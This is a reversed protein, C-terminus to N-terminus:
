ASSPMRYVFEHSSNLRTSKRDTEWDRYRSVVYKYNYEKQWREFTRVQVGDRQADIVCPVGEIIRFIATHSFESKTFKRILRALLKQGTCHLVDFDELLEVETNKM